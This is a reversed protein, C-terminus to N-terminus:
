RRPRAHGLHQQAEHAALLLNVLGLGSVAGRSFASLVLQRLTPHPQILYNADWLWTWPTVVLVVGVLLSSLISLFLTAAGARMM